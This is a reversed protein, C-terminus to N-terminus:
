TYHMITGSAIVGALSAARGEDLAYLIAILGGMSHGMQVLLPKKIPDSVASVWFPRM